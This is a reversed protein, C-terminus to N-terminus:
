SRTYGSSDIIADIFSLLCDINESYNDKAAHYTEDRQEVLLPIDVFGMFKDGLYIPVETLDTIKNRSTNLIIEM